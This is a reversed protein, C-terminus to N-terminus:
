DRLGAVGGHAPVAVQQEDTALGVQRQGRSRALHEPQPQGVGGVAADEVDPQRASPHLEDAAVAAPYFVLLEDGLHQECRRLPGNDVDQEVLGPLQGEFVAGRVPGVRQGRDGHSLLRASGDSASATGAAGCACRLQGGLPALEVVPEGRRRVLDEGQNGFHVVGSSGLGSRPRRNVGARHMRVDGAVLRSAARLAAHFEEGRGRRRGLDAVGARHVRVDGAVLRSAARPAPHLQEGSSRDGLGGAVCM